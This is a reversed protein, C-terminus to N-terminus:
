DEEDSADDEEDSADEPYYERMFSQYEGWSESREMFENIFGQKKDTWGGKLKTIQEQQEKIIRDYARTQATPAEASAIAKMQEMLGTEQKLKTNEAKLEDLQTERNQILRVFDRDDDVDMLDKIEDVIGNEDKLKENDAKLLEYHIFHEDLTDKYTQIEEVHGAKLKRLEELEAVMAVAQEMAQTLLNSDMRNELQEKLITAVVFFLKM